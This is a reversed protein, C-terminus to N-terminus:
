VMHDVGQKIELPDSVNIRSNEIINAIECQTNGLFPLKTALINAPASAAQPYRTFGSLGTQAIYVLGISTSKKKPPINATTMARMSLTGGNQIRKEAITEKANAPIM